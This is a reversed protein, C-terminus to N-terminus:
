ARETVFESDHDSTERDENADAASATNQTAQALQYADARVKPDRTLPMAMRVALHWSLAEIFLPTYKTPDTLRYTYRLFAPSLDCYITQGEIEHAFGFADSKAATLDSTQNETYAPRVYRVKLCDTPRRYAYGWSGVKDNAVEALSATKAAFSWPYVQLLTDRVHDYFQNCALAEAGADTLASINDKGLNSLALNCISVISSM